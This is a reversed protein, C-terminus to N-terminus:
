TCNESLMRMYVIKKMVGSVREATKGEKILNKIFDVLESSFIGCTIFSSSSSNTVFDTRFKM